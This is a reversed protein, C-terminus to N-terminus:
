RREERIIEHALHRISLAERLWMMWLPRLDQTIGGYAIGDPTHVLFPQSRYVLADCADATNGAAICLKRALAEEPSTM